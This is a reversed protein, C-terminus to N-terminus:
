PFRLKLCWAEWEKKFKAMDPNGLVKVLTKYGTPDSKHNDMFAKFYKQLLNNEQLYYCLYRAQAYHIGSGKGYFESSTTGTLAKFSVTKKDRIGEQLGKLRWNTFGVIMGKRTGCQEYLSAMGENFWSPCEPFNTPIFAHFMEHVLTGGGTSINMVMARSNESFFGFPTGPESGTLSKATQKFSKADGLLWITIIFSPENKFYYKRFMQTAWRVTGIAHRRVMFRNQNGAVVFPKEVYYHLNEVPPNKKLKLIHQAYDADTFRSKSAPASTPPKKSLTSLPKLRFRIATHHTKNYKLPWTRKFYELKMRLYAGKDSAPEHYIIEKKDPDYGLVLRFHEPSEPKDEYRSCVISPIGRSLDARINEFLAELEKGTNKVSIRNWIESTKGADMGLKVIARHLDPAYCGRGLAPDLGSCNFVDDQTVSSGLKKMWMAVCAEGCFDPKQRIHPVEAIYLKKDAAPSLTCSCLMLFVVACPAKFFMRMMCGKRFHPKM